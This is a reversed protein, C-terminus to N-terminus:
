VSFSMLAGLGLNRLFGPPSLTVHRVKSPSAIDNDDCILVM